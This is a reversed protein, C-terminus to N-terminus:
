DGYTAYGVNVIFDALADTTTYTSTGSVSGTVASVQNNGGDITIGSLYYNTESVMTFVQSDGRGIENTAGSPSITGGTSSDTVGTFNFMQYGYSITFVHNAAINELTYTATQASNSVNNIVSVDDLTAASVYFGSNTAMTFVQSEGEPIQVTAGSPSLTGGTILFATNVTTASVSFYRFEGSPDSPVAWDNSFSKGFKDEVYRLAQEHGNYIIQLEDTLDVLDPTQSYGAVYVKKVVGSVKYFLWKGVPKNNKVIM